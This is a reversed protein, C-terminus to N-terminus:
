PAAVQEAQLVKELMQQAGAADPQRRLIRKLIREAERYRGNGWAQDALALEAELNLPQPAASAPVHVPAAVSAALRALAANTDDLEAQADAERPSGRFRRIFAELGAAYRRLEAEGAGEGPANRLVLLLATDANASSWNGLDATRMVGAPYARRGAIYQVETWEQRSNQPARIVNVADGRKLEVIVNASGPSTVIVSKEAMVQANAMFSLPTAGPSFMIWEILVVMVAAAGIATLM